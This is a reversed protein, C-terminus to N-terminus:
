HDGRALALGVGSVMYLGGTMRYRLRLMGRLLPRVAGAGTVMVCDITALVGLYVAAVSMVQAFSAGHPLFQPLFAALFMLTKPNLLALAFGQGILRGYPARSAKADVPPAMGRRWSIVGMVLLYAAGLWKLWYLAGAAYELLVALGSVVLALQCAIGLSTGLVSAYGAPRGRELTTAVFFALNPGPIVALVATAGALATFAAIDM